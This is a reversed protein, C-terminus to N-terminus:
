VVCYSHWMKCVINIENYHLLSFIALRTKDIQWIRFSKPKQMLLENRINHQCKWFGCWNLNSACATAHTFQLGNTEAWPRILSNCRKCHKLCSPCWVPATNIVTAHYHDHLVIQCIIHKQMIVPRGFLFPNSRSSHYQLPNFCEVLITRAPQNNHSQVYLLNRWFIQWIWKVTQWHIIHQFVVEVNDPRWWFWSALDM